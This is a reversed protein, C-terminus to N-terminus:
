LALGIVSALDEDSFRLGASFTYVHNEPSRGIDEAMIKTYLVSWIRTEASVRLNAGIEDRYDFVEATGRFGYEPIIYDIGLGGTSEILGARLGIRNIKRGVQLNSRFSSSDVERDNVVVPTGNDTTTTTTIERVLSAGDGVVLGFRFFREPSPLLDLDLETKSGEINNAGAYINIDTKFNNVRGVIRNLGSLTENVNDIVEEDRLLKGVTGKGSRVDAVIVRLDSMSEDVKDLIPGISELDGMLSGDQYRDTEFALQSTVRKLNDITENLKTENGAIIRDLSNSIKNANKSFQNIEMVIERIMNKKNDDYLSEKIAKTIEKVDKLIASADKGLEEFGAGSEASIMSNEKARPLDPNGLYIDIFKDGLFGVSKIRLKSASTVKISKLVQFKILANSGNLEISKIKGAVIGAVKISSNEYIGTADSVITRYDVFEGFSAKNSTIKLSVIIMSAIAMLTLLGVKLENM